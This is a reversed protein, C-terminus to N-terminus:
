CIRWSCLNLFVKTAWELEKQLEQLVGDTTGFNHKVKLLYGKLIGESFLKMRRGLRYSDSIVRIKDKTTKSVPAKVAQPLDDLMITGPIMGVWEGFKKMENAKMEELKAQDEANRQKVIIQLRSKQEKFSNQRSVIDQTIISSEASVRTTKATGSTEPSVRGMRFSDGKLKTSRMPSIPASNNQALVATINLGGAPRKSPLKQAPKHENSLLHLRAAEDAIDQLAIPAQGLANGSIYNENLKSLNSNGRTRTKSKAGLSAEGNIKGDSAKATKTISENSKLITTTSQSAKPKATTSEEVANSSGSRDLGHDQSSKGLNDCSKSSKADRIEKSKVSSSLSPSNEKGSKKSLFSLEAQVPNGALDTSVKHKERKIEDSDGAKKLFSLEKKASISSESKLSIAQGKKSNISSEAKTASGQFSKEQSGDKWPAIAKTRTRPLTPADSAPLNAAKNLDSAKATSINM